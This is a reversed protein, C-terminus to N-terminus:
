DEDGDSVGEEALKVAARALPALQELIDTMRKHRHSEFADLLIFVKKKRDWYSFVRWTKGLRRVEVIGLRTGRVVDFRRSTFAFDVGVEYGLSDLKEVLDYLAALVEPEKKLRKQVVSVGSVDEGIVLLYFYDALRRLSYPCDTM